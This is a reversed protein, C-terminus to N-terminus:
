GNSAPTPAQAPTTEGEFGLPKKVTPRRGHRIRSPDFDMADSSSGESVVPAVNQTEYSVAVVPDTARSELPRRGSSGLETNLPSAVPEAVPAPQQESSENGFVESRRARDRNRDRDGRGDRNRDRDGRGNRDRDGRGDRDPRDPRGDRRPERGIEPTASQQAPRPTGTQFNGRQPGQQPRSDRSPNQAPRSDQLNVRRGQKNFDPNLKKVEPTRLMRAVDMVKVLIALGLVLIAVLLAIQINEM